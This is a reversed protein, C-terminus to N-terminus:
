QKEFYDMEKERTVMGTVIGKDYSKLPFIVKIKRSLLTKQDERDFTPNGEKCVIKIKKM